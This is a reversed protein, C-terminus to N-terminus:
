NSKLKYCIPRRNRILSTYMQKVIYKNCTSFSTHFVFSLKTAFKIANTM